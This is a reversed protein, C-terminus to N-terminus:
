SEDSAASKSIEELLAHVKGQVEIVAEAQALKIRLRNNEARLRNMETISPGKRNADSRGQVVAANLLGQRHQRRWDSVISSYLGERRLIASKDGTESCSDLEALVALKYEPSFARRVPNHHLPRGSGDTAVGDNVHWTDAKYIAARRESAGPRRRKDPGAPGPSPDLNTPM